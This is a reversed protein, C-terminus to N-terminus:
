SENYAHKEIINHKLEEVNKGVNAPDAVAKRLHHQLIDPAMRVKKPPESIRAKLGLDDIGHGRIEAKKKLEGVDNVWAWPDNPFRAIRSIYTMGSGLDHGTAKKYNAKAKKLWIADHNYKSGDLAGGMFVRDTNNTGPPKRFAFIEAMLHSEGDLRCRVYREQIDDDQSVIPLQRVYEFLKEETDFVLAEPM